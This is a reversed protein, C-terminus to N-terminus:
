ESSRWGTSSSCPRWFNVEDLDGMAQLTSYWKDDTIAITGFM